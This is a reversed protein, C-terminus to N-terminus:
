QQEKCYCYPRLHPHAQQVCHPQQGYRNTRSIQRYSVTMQDSQLHHSITGEYTAFGPETTISVQYLVESARMSDSMDPTRGDDDASKKFHLVEDTAVFKAAASINHLRLDVCLDRHKSTFANIARVLEQSARDIIYDSTSTPKWQLCGCWHPQIGASACTRDKPIESMLSLGRGKAPTGKTFNLLHHFTAHIDYPTTLRQRNTKLNKLVEPHSRLFSPPFRLALYPQREEYKGQETQRISQFRAGHDSMLILLTNELEGREQLGWLLDKLDQDILRSMSHKDHSLESHFLFSFKPQNPYMRYFERIWNFMNVHRPISGLCYPKNRYYYEEAVLYFNRMYHDVPQNKFGRMRYTFTGVKAGDEGWQTVYGNQALDKWIWPHGDVYSANAFGKRAEPLELENMGTLIPLLAQPTGDGVINYGEMVEAGLQSTVYDHTRPLNRIWSLRSTSDLGFMLINMQLSAPNKKVHSPRDHVDKIYAIGSHVNSYIGGDTGVCKALFADSKLRGSKVSSKESKGKIIQFDDEGHYLPTHECLVNGHKRIADESIFYSGNATFIWNPEVSSCELPEPDTFFSKIAPHWLQLEPHVCAQHNLSQGSLSSKSLLNFLRPSVVQEVFQQPHFATRLGLYTSVTVLFATMLMLHRRCQRQPLFCSWRHPHSSKRQGFGRLADM